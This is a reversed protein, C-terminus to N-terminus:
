SIPPREQDEALDVVSTLSGDHSSRFSGEDASHVDEEGSRGPLFRNVGIMEFDSDRWRVPTQGPTLPVVPFEAPEHKKKAKSFWNWSVIGKRTGTYLIVNVFGTCDFLCAGIYVSNLGFPRNAFESIRSISLTLTLLIYIFPYILLSLSARNLRQHQKSQSFRQSQRSRRQELTITVSKTTLIQTPTTVLPSKGAELNSQWSREQAANNHSNNNSNDTSVTVTRCAKTQVRIYCFLVSYLITLTFMDLFLFALRLIMLPSLVM